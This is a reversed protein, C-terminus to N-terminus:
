KESSLTKSWKCIMDKQSATLIAEPTKELFSKPPMAGKTIIKCIADAKNAQKDPTYNNWDSFNLKSMAMVKGGTSHCAMCSNKFIVNLDDPISVTTAPKTSNNGTPKAQSLDSSSLISLMVAIGLFLITKKM